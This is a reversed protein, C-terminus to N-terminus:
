TATTGAHRRVQFEKWKADVFSRIEDDFRDQAFRQANERCHESSIEDRRREFELIAESLSEPTQEDFFVGTPRAGELGRVTERAGGKGYAIVPTGCAQAEVPVIGFDEEAAFVFARAKRLYEVMTETSQYGLFHVNGSALGRLKAADPGDGIIYLQLNPLYSFAKVIVDVRKYQVLRSATVYFSNKNIELTFSDIDVPPYIVTSERRYTKEIRRSVFFSNALFHDVGFSSRIDWLRLKHLMWRAFFSKLGRELGSERLYQHQLDWAYRIPSHVYSVHLQDPGVLVGKAVAYSSSIVIDFSSLDLQEIALPMLWVYNRYRRKAFPLSQIFTTRVKKGELFRRQEEPLFDVTSYVSAGPFCAILRELVREAGAYTTLWDHVIAVRPNTGSDIRDGSTM